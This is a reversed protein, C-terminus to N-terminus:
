KDSHRAARSDLVAILVSALLVLATGVIMRGSLKERFVLVGVLISTIPELTSLISTRQGGILFTGQQFLVVAVCTVAMAFLLCLGWGKWSGPFALQGSVLCVLLIALSSIAAVYFSFLFGSIGRRKYGSLLIVYAAFTVGSGIALLSGTLNLAEGPAYFLSIGGVCVAVCVVIGVRFKERLFILGGAVVLAPYIFHLVTATGSSLYNYSQFLLVPTVGCGLVAILSLMPLEKVPVALSKGEKLALLALVPLALANRLLVLTLANVGDAYILKAMLPMCGYIVASTIVYLYGRLMNGRNM